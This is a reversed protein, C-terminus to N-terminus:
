YSYFLFRAFFWYSTYSFINTFTDKRVTKEGILNRLITKITIGDRDLYVQKDMM